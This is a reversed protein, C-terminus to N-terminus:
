LNGEDDMQSHLHEALIKYGIDKQERDPFEVVFFRSDLITGDWLTGMLM